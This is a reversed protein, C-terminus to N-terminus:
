GWQVLKIKVARRVSRRWPSSPVGQPILWNDQTPMCSGTDNIWVCSPNGLQRIAAPWSESGKEPETSSAADETVNGVGSSTSANSSSTINSTNGGGVVVAGALTSIPPPTVTLGGPVGPLSLDGPLEAGAAPTAAPDKSSSINTTAGSLAGPGRTLFGGPSPGDGPRMSGALQQLLPQLWGQLSGEHQQQVAASGMQGTSKSSGDGDETDSDETSDREQESSGGQQAPASLLESNSRLDDLNKM